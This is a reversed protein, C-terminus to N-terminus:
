YKLVERRLLPGNQDFGKPVGSHSGDRVSLRKPRCGAKGARREARATRWKPAEVASYGPISGLIASASRAEFTATSASGAALDCASVLRIVPESVPLATDRALQIILAKPVDAMEKVIEAITARVRVAEDEVLKTLVRLAQEEFGGHGPKGLLPAITALKRALLMRVREDADAALAGDARPPAHTNMAVTARVTVADDVALM